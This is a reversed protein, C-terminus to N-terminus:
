IVHGVRFDLESLPECWWRNRTTPTTPLPSPRREKSGRSQWSSRLPLIRQLSPDVRGKKGGHETSIASDDPPDLPEFWSLSQEVEGAHEESTVPVAHAACSASRCPLRRAHHPPRRPDQHDHASKGTVGCERM